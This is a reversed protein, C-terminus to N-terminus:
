CILRYQSQTVELARSGSESMSSRSAAARPAWGLGSSRVRMWLMAWTHLASTDSSLYICTVPVSRCYRKCILPSRRSANDEDFITSQFPRLRFRNRCGTGHASAYRSDLHLRLLAGSCQAFGRKASGHSQCKCYWCLLRNRQDARLEIRWLRQWFSTVSTAVLISPLYNRPYNIFGKHRPFYDRGFPYLAMGAMGAVQWNTKQITSVCSYTSAGAPVPASTGSGCTGMTNPFTGTAVTSPTLAYSSTPVHIVM